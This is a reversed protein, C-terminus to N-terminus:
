TQVRLEDYSRAIWYDYAPRAAIREHWASVHPMDDLITSCLDTLRYFLSGVAIDAISFNDGALYDSRNALGREMVVLASQLAKLSDAEVTASRDPPALRVRQWFLAIFPPQLTTSGFEMWNDMEVPLTQLIGVKRVLHRLIAHSEWIVQHGDQMMPVRRTPTLGAFAPNDLGGFKGGVVHHEYPIALEQLAWLVKQVNVSSDRGWLIM